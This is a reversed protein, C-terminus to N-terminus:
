PAIGIIVLPVAPVGSGRRNVSDVEMEYYPIGPLPETSMQKMPLVEVGVDIVDAVYLALHKALREYALVSEKFPVSVAIRGKIFDTQSGPPAFPARAQLAGTTRASAERDASVLGSSTLLGDWGRYVLADEFRQNLRAISDVQRPQSSISPHREATVVTAIAQEIDNWVHLKHVQIHEWGNLHSHRAVVRM